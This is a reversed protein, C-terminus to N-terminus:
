LACSVSLERVIGAGSDEALLKPTKSPAIIAGKHLLKLTDLATQTAESVARGFHELSQGPQLPVEYLSGRFEISVTGMGVTLRAAVPGIARDVLKCM